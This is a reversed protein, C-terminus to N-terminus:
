QAERDVDSGGGLRYRLAGDRERAEVRSERELVDLHGVVESLVLHLQAQWVRPFMRQGIECPTLEPAGALERVIRLKRKEQHLRYSAILGLHDWIVDGHSPFAQAAPLREVRALSENYRVLSPTRPSGTSAPFDLLTVPTIDPLLHDGSLMARSAPQWFVVEEPCHGPTHVVELDFGDWEVVEGDRLYRDPELPEVLDQVGEPGMRGGRMEPPVGFLAYWAEVSELRAPDQPGYRAFSEAAAEHIWVPCGATRRIRAAQGYHDPHAHTLLLLGIDEVGFGFEKLGECLAAWAADSRVGADVLLLRDSGPRPLVAYTNIDGVAFPTPTAIRAVRGFRNREVYPREM